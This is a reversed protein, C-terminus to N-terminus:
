RFLTWFLPGRKPADFGWARRQRPVDQDPTVTTM